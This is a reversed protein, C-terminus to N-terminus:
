GMRPGRAPPGLRKRMDEVARVAEHMPIGARDALWAAVGAEQLDIGEWEDALNRFALIVSESDSRAYDIGIVADEFPLALERPITM